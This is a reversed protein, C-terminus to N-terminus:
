VEVIEDWVDRNTSDNKKYFEMKVGLGISGVTFIIEM